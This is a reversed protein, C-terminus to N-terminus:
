RVVQGGKKTGDKKKALRAQAARLMEGAKQKFTESDIEDDCYQQVLEILEGYGNVMAMVQRAADAAAAYDPEAMTKRRPGGLKPPKALAPKVSNPPSSGV